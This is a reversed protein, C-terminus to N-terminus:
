ELARVLGKNVRETEIHLVYYPCLEFDIENCDVSHDYQCFTYKHGQLEETLSLPCIRKIM